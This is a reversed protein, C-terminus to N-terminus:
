SIAAPVRWRVDTTPQDATVADPEGARSGRRRGSWVVLMTTILSGVLLTGAMARHPNGESYRVQVDSPERTLAIRWKLGVGHQVKNLTKQIRDLVQTTNTAVEAPTTGVVQVDLLPQDFNQAWQGGSNPLRVQSGHHVGQALLTTQTGIGPSAGDPQVLRGVLGATAIVSDTTYAYTNVGPASPALFYVTTDTWYLGRPERVVALAILTLLVGVAAVVAQRRTLTRDTRSGARGTWAQAM